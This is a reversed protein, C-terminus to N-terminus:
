ATESVPAPEASMLITPVGAPADRVTFVHTGPKRGPRVDSVNFGAAALRAQTAHPDAVRWALGGFSDPEDSPPQKLSAGFELVSDGVKFFLQRAGWQENSRDLRLDLGLKAGYLALAREPNPTRIVVHDLKAVPAGGTPASLPWPGDRPPAEFLLQLGATEAPAPSAGLWYRKRGDDHTSRTLSPASTKLGRRTLLTAYADLDSATFAVAWIGEGHTDLQARMREGFAGEGHPTIIDLAMNSFQFWAHRAGGDGGLWNPAVGLLRTYGDAVADLDRVVLAVHDVATIM